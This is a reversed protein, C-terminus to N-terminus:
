RIYTLIKKITKKVLNIIKNSVIFRYLFFHANFNYMINNRYYSKLGLKAILEDTVSLFFPGEGLSKAKSAFKDYYSNIIVLRKIKKIDIIDLPQICYNTM